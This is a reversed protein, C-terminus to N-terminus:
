FNPACLLALLTGASIAVAYPLQIEPSPSPPPPPPRWFLLRRLSYRLRTPFNPRWILTLMAQGAGCISTFLIASQVEFKGLLAGVAGMLIVDGLGFGKLLHFILFVGGGLLFGYFSSKFSDFGISYSLILGLAIAPFTLWHPIRREKLDYYVALTLLPVLLVLALPSSQPVPMFGSTSIENM